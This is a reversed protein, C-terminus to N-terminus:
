GCSAAVVGLPLWWGTIVSDLLQCASVSTRVIALSKNFRGMYGPFVNFRGRKAADSTPDLYKGSLSGGALPSYALLGVNM